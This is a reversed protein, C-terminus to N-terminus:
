RNSDSVNQQIDLDTSTNSKYVHSLMNLKKERDSFDARNDFVFDLSNARLLNFHFKFLRNGSIASKPSSQENFQFYKNTKLILFKRKDTLSQTLKNYSELSGSGLLTALKTTLKKKTRFDGFNLYNEYIRNYKRFIYNNNRSSRGQVIQDVLGSGLRFSNLM